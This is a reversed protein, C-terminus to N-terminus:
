PTVIGSGEKITVSQDAPIDLLQEASETSPWLIEVKDVKAAKGLGFHLRLDSQSM